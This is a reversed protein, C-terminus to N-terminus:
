GEFCLAIGCVLLTVKLIHIALSCTCLIYYPWLSEVKYCSMARSSFLDCEPVISGHISWIMHISSSPLVMFVLLIYCKPVVM